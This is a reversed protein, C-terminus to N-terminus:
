GGDTTRTAVIGKAQLEQQAETIKRVGDSTALGQLVKTLAAESGNRAAQAGNRFLDAVEHLGQVLKRHADRAEKPPTIAAFRDAARDIANAGQDLREGAQALSTSTGTQQQIQTFTQQLTRSTAQLDKVYQDKSEASSGGGGGCGAVALLGALLPVVLLRRM